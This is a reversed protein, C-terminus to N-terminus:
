KKKICVKNALNVAEIVNIKTAPVRSTSSRLQLLNLKIAAIRAKSELTELSVVLHDFLNVVLSLSAGSIKLQQQQQDMEVLSIEGPNPLATRPILIRGDKTRVPVPGKLGYKPLMVLLANRKFGIVVAEEEADQSVIILIRPL